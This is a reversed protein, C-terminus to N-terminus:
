LNAIKILKEKDLILLFGKGKRELIGNKQLDSIISSLTQRSTGISQALLETSFPLKISLSSMNKEDQLQSLLFCAFRSRVDRFALNEITDICGSLTSSLVRTVAGVLKPHEQLRQSFTRLDSFYVESEEIAEVYARTHTCYVDGASLLALTFVKDEYSLYVRLTGSVIYFVQNEPDQPNSLITNLSISRKHFGSLLSEFTLVSHDIIPIM